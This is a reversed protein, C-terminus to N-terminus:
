AQQQNFNPGEVPKHSFCKLCGHMPSQSTALNKAPLSDSNGEQSELTEDM